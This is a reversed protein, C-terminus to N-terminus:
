KLADKIESLSLNMLWDEFADPMDDDTGIYDKAHAEKLKDEQEPTLNDIIEQAEDNEAKAILSRENKRLVAFFEDTAAEVALKGDEVTISSSGVKNGDILFEVQYEKM